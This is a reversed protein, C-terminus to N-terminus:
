QKDALTQLFKERMQKMHESKRQQAKEIFAVMERSPNKIQIINTTEM